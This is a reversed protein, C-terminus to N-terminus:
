IKEDVNRLPNNDDVVIVTGDPLKRVQDRRVAVKKVPVKFQADKSTVNANSPRRELESWDM